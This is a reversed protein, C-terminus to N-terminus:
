TRRLKKMVREESGAVKDWFYDRFPDSICGCDMSDLYGHNCTTCVRTHAPNPKIDSSQIM